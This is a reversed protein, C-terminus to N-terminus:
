ESTAADAKNGPAEGRLDGFEDPPLCWGQICALAEPCAKDTDCAKGQGLLCAGAGFGMFVLFLILLPFFPRHKAKSQMRRDMHSQNHPSM